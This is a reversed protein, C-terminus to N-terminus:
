LRPPAASSFEQRQDLRNGTSDTRPGTAVASGSQELFDGRVRTSLKSSADSQTPSCMVRILIRWRGPLTLKRAGAKGIPAGRQGAMAIRFQHIM